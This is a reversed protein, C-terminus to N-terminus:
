VEGGNRDLLELFLGAHDKEAGDLEACFRAFRARTQETAPLSLGAARAESLANDLDKLQLHSLGGPVFDRASMRAGHQQLIVSDAFGGKLADRVATPDAGGRELLLTAEAVAAITNAVIMQNALKALQGAGSPGVLVPRGMAQLAPKAREFAAAEGGVMIALSGAAAGKTGGSVPADLHQIGLSSLIEAQARAEDPKVSAMEIWLAGESLNARLDADAQVAATAQGDSLISVIIDAGSVAEAARKAVTLGYASLPAAKAPSRNWVTVSFGAAQLNRAMPAGMLGTGLFAIKQM